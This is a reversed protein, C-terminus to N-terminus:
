STQAGVGPCPSQSLSLSDWLATQPSSSAPWARLLRDGGGVGRGGQVFWLLGGAGLFFSVPVEAGLATLTLPISTDGRWGQSQVMTGQCPRLSGLRNRM